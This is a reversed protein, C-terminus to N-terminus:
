IMSWWMRISNDMFVDVLHDIPQIILPILTLGIITPTWKKVKPPLRKTVTTSNLLNAAENAAINIVKGPILVSALTQWILADSGIRFVNIPTDGEQISALTKDATDCAVYTFAVGYSPRVYKPYLVGFSEGVENTYGLFRLPTERWIDRHDERLDSEEEVREISSITWSPHYHLDYWGYSLLLTVGFNVWPPTRKYQTPSALSPQTNLPFQVEKTPKKTTKVFLVHSYSKMPNNKAINVVNSSSLLGYSTRM